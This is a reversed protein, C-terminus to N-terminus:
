VKGHFEKLYTASIEKNAIRALSKDATIFNHVKSQIATALHIADPLKLAPYKRRLEAAKTCVTKDAPFDTGPLKNFFQKIPELSEDAPMRMVEGFVLSSYSANLQGNEIKRMIEASVDFFDPDEALFAIFVNSDLAINV